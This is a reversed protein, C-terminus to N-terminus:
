MAESVQGNPVTVSVANQQSPDVMAILNVQSNETSIVASSNGAHGFFFCFLGITVYM